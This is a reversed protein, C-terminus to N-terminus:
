AQEDEAWEGVRIQLEVTVSTGGFLSRYSKEILVFSETELGFTERVHLSAAEVRRVVQAHDGAEFSECLYLGRELIRDASSRKSEQEPIFCLTTGEAGGVYYLDTGFLGSPRDDAEFLMRTTPETRDGLEAWRVLKRDPLRRLERHMASRPPASEREHLLQRMLHELRQLSAIEGQIRELSSRLLREHGEADGDDLVPGVEATPISLNRLLLIHALRYMEELGYRRYGNSETHAPLLLGKQEFYRVQHVSVGMLEAFERISLFDNM